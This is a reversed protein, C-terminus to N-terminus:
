IKNMFCCQELQRRWREFENQIGDNPADLVRHAVNRICTKLHAQLQEVIYQGQIRGNGACKELVVVEHKELVDKVDQRIALV